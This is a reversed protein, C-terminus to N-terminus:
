LDCNISLSSVFSRTIVVGCYITCWMYSMSASHCIDKSWFIAQRRTRARAMIQILAPINNIRAKLIFKLSIKLSIWVYENLFICKFIDDPFFDAMEDGGWHSLCMRNCRNWQMAHHNGRQIMPLTNQLATVFIIDFGRWFNCSVRHVCIPNLPFKIWPHLKIASNFVYKHPVGMFSCRLLCIVPECISGGGGGWVCVCVCVCKVCVSLVCVHVFVTTCAVCSRYHRVKIDNQQDPHGELSIYIIFLSLFIDRWKFM